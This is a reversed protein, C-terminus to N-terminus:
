APSLMWVRGGPVGLGRGGEEYAHYAIRLIRSVRYALYAVCSAPSVELRRAAPAAPPKTCGRRSRCVPARPPRAMREPPLHRQLLDRRRLPRVAAPRAAGSILAPPSLPPCPARAPRPRPAPPAPPFLPLPPIAPAATLDVHACARRGQAKTRGRSTRSDLAPQYLAPPEEYGALRVAMEVPPELSRLCYSCAPFYM